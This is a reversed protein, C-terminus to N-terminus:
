SGTATLRQAEALYAQAKKLDAYLGANELSIAAQSALLKLLAIRSPTFVHSTVNNELYVVGVLTAQKALPLCLVSRVHHEMVYADTSFPAEATADDVIVAEHTRLAYNLVTEPLDSPGALTGLLRVTVTDRQTTGEAEVRAEGGRQVILLGREAGAHPLATVMLTEVLRDILIESSITHWAKIVTALDLGEAALPEKAKVRLERPFQIRPPLT